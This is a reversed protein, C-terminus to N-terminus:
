CFVTVDNFEQVLRDSFYKLFYKTQLYQFLGSDQPDVANKELIQPLVLELLQRLAECMDISLVELGVKAKFIPGKVLHPEIPEPGRGDFLDNLIFGFSWNMPNSIGEWARVAHTRTDSLDQMMVDSGYEVKLQIKGLQCLMYIADSPRLLDSNGVVVIDSSNGKEFVSNIKISANAGENSLREVKAHICAELASEGAYDQTFAQGNDEYEGEITFEKLPILAKDSDVIKFASDLDILSGTEKLRNKGVEIDANLWTHNIGDKGLYERARVLAATLVLIVEDDSAKYQSGQSVSAVPENIRSRIRKWGFGGVTVSLAELCETHSLSYGKAKLHRQLRQSAEKFHTTDKTDIINHTTM